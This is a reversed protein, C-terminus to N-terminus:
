PMADKPNPARPAFTQDHLIAVGYGVGLPGEYSLVEHGTADFGCAGAALLVSDLADEGALVELAPDVQNLARYDGGRITEILWRDFEVARPEYGAPAFRTLRHSMDGSALVAARGGYVGAASAIAEGFEAVGAEGPYNLSVVVTPGNWGAEVLFWLPVVAGHDLEGPGIGWTAIGREAAERAMATALRADSPLDVGAEAAGFEALTGRCRGGSWIGFAGPQRPSHPSVVIVVDAQVGVLRGAAERLAAVSQAVEGIRNGGVAPVLVPAHPMLAALCVAENTAEDSM